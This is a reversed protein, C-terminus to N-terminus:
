RELTMLQILRVNFFHGKTINDIHIAVDGELNGKEFHEFLEGLTFYLKEKGWGTRVYFWFGLEQWLVFTQREWKVGEQLDKKEKFFKDM